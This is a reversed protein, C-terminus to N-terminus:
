YAVSSRRIIQVRQTAPVNILGGGEASIVSVFGNPEKEVKEVTWYDLNDVILDGKFLHEALAFEKKLRNVLNANKNDESM